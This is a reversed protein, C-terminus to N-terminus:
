KAWWFLIYFHGLDHINSSLLSDFNRTLIIVQIWFRGSLLFLFWKNNLFLIGHIWIFLLLWILDNLILWLIIWINFISAHKDIINGVKHFLWNLINFVSCILVESQMLVLLRHLKVLYTKSFNGWHSIDVNVFVGVHHPQCDLSVQTDTVWGQSYSQWIAEHMKRGLAYFNIHVVRGWLHM